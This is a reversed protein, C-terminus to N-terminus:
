CLKLISHKDFAVEDPLSEQFLAGFEEFDAFIPLGEICKVRDALGTVWSFAANLTIWCREVQALTWVEVHLIATLVVRVM